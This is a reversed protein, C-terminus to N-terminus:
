CGDDTTWLTTQFAAWSSRCKEETWDNNLYSQLFFERHRQYDDPVLHSPMIELGRENALREISLNEEATTGQHMGENFLSCHGFEHILVSTMVDWGYITYGLSSIEIYRDHGYKGSRAARWAWWKYEPSTIRVGQSIVYELADLYRQRHSCRNAAYLSEFCSECRCPKMPVNDPPCWHSRLMAQPSVILM